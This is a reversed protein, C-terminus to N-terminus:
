YNEDESEIDTDYDEENECEKCKCMRKRCIKTMKNHTSWRIEVEKSTTNLWSGLYQFDEVRKIAHGHKSNIQGQENFCMFETKGTNIHLGIQMAADEVRVLLASAEQINDSILALDDAFDADTLYHAPYRKSIRENLTFGLNEYKDLVTRM